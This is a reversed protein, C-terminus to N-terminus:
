VTLAVCLFGKHIHPLCLRPPNLFTGSINHIKYPMVLFRISSQTKLWTDWHLPCQGLLLHFGFGPIFMRIVSTGTYHARVKAGMGTFYMKQNQHSVYLESETMSASNAVSRVVLIQWQALCSRYSKKDPRQQGWMSYTEKKVSITFTMTRVFSMMCMADYIFYTDKNWNLPFSYALLLSPVSSSKLYLHM